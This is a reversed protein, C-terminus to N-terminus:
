FTVQNNNLTIYPYDQSKIETKVIIVLVVVRVYHCHGVVTSLGVVMLLVPHSLLQGPTQPVEPVLGERDLGLNLVVHVSQRYSM